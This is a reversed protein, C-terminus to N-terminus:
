WTFACWSSVNWSEAPQGMSGHKMPLMFQTGPLLSQVNLSLCSSLNHTSEFQAFVACSAESPSIDRVSYPCKIELFGFPSETNDPDYVAGDPSAGLYPHSLSVFFGCPSVAINPHDNNHQYEIYESIAIPEMQM